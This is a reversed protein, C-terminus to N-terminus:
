HVSPVSHLPRFLASRSSKISCSWEYQCPTLFLRTLAYVAKSKKVWATMSMILARFSLQLVALLIPFNESRQGTTTEPYFVDTEHARCSAGRMLLLNQFIDGRCSVQIIFLPGFLSTMIKGQLANGRAHYFGAWLAQLGKIIWPCVHALNVDSNNTYQRECM